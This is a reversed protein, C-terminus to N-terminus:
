RHSHKKVHCTNIGFLIYLPCFSILSTLLFIGALAGLVVGWVGTLTGSIILAAVIMAIVIRITRDTNGMNRKM